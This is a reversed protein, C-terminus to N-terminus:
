GCTGPCPPEGCVWGDNSHVCPAREVGEVCGPELPCTEAVDPRCEHDLDLCVLSSSSGGCPGAATLLLCLGNCDDDTACGAPLCQPRGETCGCVWGESCDDDTECSYVCGCGEAIAPDLVGDDLCAGFPGDTCEASTTCSGEVGSVAECTAPPEPVECAVAEVRHTLTGDCTSFGSSAGSPQLVPEDEDCALDWDVAGGSTGETTGTDASTGQGGTQSGTAGDTNSTDSTGSTGSTNQSTGGAGGDAGEDAGSGPGCGM